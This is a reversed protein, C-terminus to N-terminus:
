HITIETLEAALQLSGRYDDSFFVAGDGDKIGVRRLMERPQPQVASLIIKAGSLKAQEIFAEIMTVGSADLLPVLRMRLIIVKPTRGIKRMADLLGGAVGFFVPGNIRFVEVDKPLDDRQELEESERDEEDDAASGNQL